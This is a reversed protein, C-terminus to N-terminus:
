NKQHLGVMASHVKQSRCTLKILFKLSRTLGLLWKYILSFNDLFNSVTVLRFTKVNRIYDFWEQIQKKHVVLVHLKNLFELSRTLDSPWINVANKPVPFKHGKNNLIIIDFRINICIKPSNGYKIIFTSTNLTKKIKWFLKVKLRM